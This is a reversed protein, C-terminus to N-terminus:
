EMRYHLILQLGHIGMKREGRDLFGAKLYLKQAAINGENVALIIENVKPDLQKVLEPLARM